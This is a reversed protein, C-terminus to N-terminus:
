DWHHGQAITQGIQNQMNKAHDYKGFLVWYDVVVDDYQIAEM